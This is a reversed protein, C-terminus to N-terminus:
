LATAWGWMGTGIRAQSGHVSSKNDTLTPLLSEPPNGTRAFRRGCVETHHCGLRAGSILRSERCTRVGPRVSYAQERGRRTKGWDPTTLAVTCYTMLSRRWALISNSAFPWFGNCCNGRLLDTVLQRPCFDTTDTTDHRKGFEVPFNRPFTHLPNQANVHGMHNNDGANTREAGRYSTLVYL